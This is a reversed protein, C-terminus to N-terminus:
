ILKGKNKWFITTLHNTVIIFESLCSHYSIESTINVLMM